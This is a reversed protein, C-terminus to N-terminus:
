KSSRNNQFGEFEDGEDWRRGQEINLFMSSKWISEFGVIEALSPCAPLSVSFVSSSKWMNECCHEGCLWLWVPLFSRGTGPWSISLSSCTLTASHVRLVLQWCHGINNCYQGTTLGTQYTASDDFKIWVFKLNILNTWSTKDTMTLRVYSTTDDVDHRILHM